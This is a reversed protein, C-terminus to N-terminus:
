FVLVALGTVVLLWLAALRFFSKPMAAFLRAGSWVGIMYAPTLFLGRLVVDASFGGGVAISVLVTVVM